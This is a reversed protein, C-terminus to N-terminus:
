DTAPELESLAYYMREPRRVWGPVPGITVPEDFQVLVSHAGEADAEARVVTGARGEEQSRHGAVPRLRAATPRVLVTGPGGSVTVFRSLRRRGPRAVSDM